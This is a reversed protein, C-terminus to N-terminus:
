RVKIYSRRWGRACGGDGCDTTDGCGFDLYFDKLQLTDGPRNSIACEETSFTCNYKQLKVQVYYAYGGTLQVRYKGTKPTSSDFAREQGGNPLQRHFIVVFDRLAQTTDDQSWDWVYGQVWIKPEPKTYQVAAFNVTKGSQCGGICLAGMLISFCCKM